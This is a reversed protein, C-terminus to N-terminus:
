RNSTGPTLYFLERAFDQRLITRVLEIDILEPSLAITEQVSRAGDLNLRRHRDRIFLYFIRTEALKEATAIPDRGRASELGELEYLVSLLYVASFFDEMELRAERLSAQDGLSATTSIRELLGVLLEGLEGGRGLWRGRRDATAKLVPVAGEIRSFADLNDGGPSLSNMAGLLDLYFAYQILKEATQLNAFPEIGREGDQLATEVRDCLFWASERDVVRLYDSLGERYIDKIRHFDLPRAQRAEVLRFYNDAFNDKSNIPSDGRGCATVVWIPIVVMWLLIKEGTM